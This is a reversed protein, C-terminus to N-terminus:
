QCVLHGAIDEEHIRAKALYKRLRARGTWQIRFQHENGIEVGKGDSADCGAPPLPLAARTRYGPATVAPTWCDGGPCDQGTQCDSWSAWDRWCPYQDSRFKINWDVQGRLGDMWLELGDLKRQAFISSWYHSRTEIVSQIRCNGGDVIADRSIEWLQNGDASSSLVFCREEGDVRMTLLHLFQLGTWFGDWVPPAKTGIGSIVHFDLVGLARGCAANGHGVLATTFLLRNDFIAAACHRLLAQGDDKTVRHMESSVPVNGWSGFERRALVFSRMGDRARYFVDGNVAVISYHSMAGFGVQVTSVAPYELTQWLDRAVPVNVSFIGNETFVLLPGQALSSDLTQIFIMGTIDGTDSPLRFSGGGALLENETFRLPSTPGNNIDGAVFGRGNVAVWLRGNGYAMVTGTPVENKKHDSRRSTGSEHIIARNSGDQVVLAGEVEEMWATDSQPINTDNFRIVAGEPIVLGPAAQINALTVNNGTVSAVLYSGDLLRATMGVAIMDVSAVALTVQGGIPPSVAAGTIETSFTPTIETASFGNSPDVSFLRGAVSIVIRDRYAHWGQVNGSAFASQREADQFSIPRHILGPRQSAEGGRFTVNVSFAVQNPRISSPTRGSDMGGLFDALGDYEAKPESRM